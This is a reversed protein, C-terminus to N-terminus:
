TSLRRNEASADSQKLCTELAAGWVVHALIMLANRRAPQRTAPPLIGLSPLLKLYSSAWVTLGWGIGSELGGGTVPRVLSSYIGGMAGGYGFHSVATALMRDESDMKDRVGIRRAVEMTIQRPPLSYREFWPLYRRGAAMLLTMPATAAIGAVTGRLIKNWMALRM